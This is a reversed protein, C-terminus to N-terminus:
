ADSPNWVDFFNFWQTPRERVAHELQDVWRALAVEEAGPKVPFPEGVTIAYRRDTELVCFAPVIPVGSARALIFPGLPFPARRGFFPVRVDSRGGLARDGQLAVVEGRRLAALLNLAATASARPVFRLGDGSRRLWRELGPAEDPAVVVHTPRGTHCALLRGGLEWNGFHATLSILGGDLDRLHEGGTVRALCGELAQGPRRNTSVLDAFCVAFDRFVARTLGDLAREPAGTMRALTQRVVAREAPMLRAALDAVGVALGLRAPRPLVGAAGALRYFLPRNYPHAYWRPPATTLAV